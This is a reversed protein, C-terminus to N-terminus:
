KPGWLVESLKQVCMDNILTHTFGFKRKLCTKFLNIKKKKYQDVEIKMNKNPTQILDIPFIPRVPHVM